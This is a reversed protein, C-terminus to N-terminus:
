LYNLKTRSKNVGDEDETLTKKKITVALTRSLARKRTQKVSSM